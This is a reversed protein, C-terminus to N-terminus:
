EAYGEPHQSRWEWASAVIQELEPYRPQWGLERCIKESSAVLVAPDGPRRPADEAAIAHGTVKRAVEVVQRVSFGRGNGLNYILQDHAALANLALVHASALDLVHIYDRICTGDPTPYDTGYISISPRKGQAVQLVLPILHSEPQHDEGLEGAGGAANFYRLSAYRLGHIRHFWALMREVLLKSEGYANTPVLPADEKIPTREPNGYLAATSSFVLRKCEHQLMCELLTLSSATNNRFYREPSRMSEGAEILAAFHMVAEPRHQQFARGLAEREGVEGIILEAGKPVARRHGHRLDDYVIVQHGSRLLEASVISGIYGAGGTVLIRM